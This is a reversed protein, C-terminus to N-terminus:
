IYEIRLLILELDGAPRQVITDDGVRRGLLSRGMPSKTSIRGKKADVEDEGVIQYTRERGDEDEVVVTAGFDVTDKANAVPDIVELSELTRTLYQVRRDIERLRKKGYIYEANESRDGHAAAESVEQVVRPRDVHWLDRLEQELQALGRPTIPRKAAM